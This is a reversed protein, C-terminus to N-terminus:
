PKDTSKKKPAAEQHDTAKAKAAKEKAHLIELPVHVEEQEHEIAEISTFQDLYPDHLPHPHVQSWDFTYFDEDQPRKELTGRHRAHM